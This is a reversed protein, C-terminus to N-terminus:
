SKQQDLAQIAQSIDAVFTKLAAPNRLIYAPHYTPTVTYNGFAHTIGRTKSIQIEDGLLARTAISGLTLIRSPNIVKIQSILLPMGLTREEPNPTRNQPPRWKVVNTIYTQERPIGLGELTKTLLRGSRGVFPRSKEDEERGLAEGIIMLQANPNGEGFVINAGIPSGLSTKGNQYPLYLNELLRKKYSQINM